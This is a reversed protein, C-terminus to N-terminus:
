KRQNEYNSYVLCSLSQVHANLHFFFVGNTCISPSIIFCVSNEFSLFCKIFQVMKSEIGTVFVHGNKSSSLSSQSQTSTICKIVDEISKATSSNINDNM